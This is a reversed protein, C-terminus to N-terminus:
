RLLLHFCVAIFWLSSAVPFVGYREIAEVLQRFKSVYVNLGLVMAAGLFYYAPFIYRSATRDSLSFILPYTLGCFALLLIASNEPRELNRLLEKTKAWICSRNRILVVLLILSWPLTYYFCRSLYYSLNVLKNLFVNQIYSPYLSRQMIQVQWYESFFELGTVERFWHEYFYLTGALTSFLLLLIGAFCGTQKLNKTELLYAGLCLFPVVIVSAGKILFVGQIGVLVIWLYKLSRTSLLAAYVAMLTFLMMSQEHNARIQYTFAVPILQLAWLLSLPSRNDKIFFGSIGVLLFLSLIQSLMQFVHLAHGAPLGLKTLILGIFVNGLFHDRVYADYPHGHTGHWKPAIWEGAPKASLHEVLETYFQSDGSKSKYSSNVLLISALVFFLAWLLWPAKKYLNSCTAKIVM